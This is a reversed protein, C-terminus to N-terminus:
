GEPTITFVLVRRCLDPPVFVANLQRAGQQGACYQVRPICREQGGRQFPCFIMALLHDSLRCAVSFDLQLQLIITRTSNRVVQQM